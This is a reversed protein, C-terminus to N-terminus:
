LAKLMDQTLLQPMERPEATGAPYHLYLPVGSRGRAELFRTIAPDGDTWDGVMVTIGKAKFHAAVGDTGIATKENVKCTLCWDATFYLFVPKGQQRLEELRKESFPEHGAAKLAEEAAVPDKGGVQQVLLWGLALATLAMPIALAKRFWDMWPGPRPMRRRLAPVFGIALFPLAMGLGLGAFILLAVPVPLILAAGLAAAMFPGTCPTAVFAALAGTWFAGKNGGQGALAGGGGFGRLTFLGALNATIALAVVLLVAVIWPNQLQFAWGVAVGGARLGLLVGGLALCTLVVGASYALAESRAAAESEGARALSLAKLSIIPFVCPLINLLLGGLLAGGFALLAQTVLSASGAQPVEGPSARLEFGRGDATAFLGSLAAPASGQMAKTEVVLWDGARSVQQPAVYDLVDLTESYFWGGEGSISSPMPIAIRLRDGQVAFRAPQTIEFPLKKRWADFSARQAPDPGGAGVTLSAKLEGEEPVCISDTCALWQAKLRIPIISGAPVDPKVRVPLLLVHEGNFVHNMLKAVILKEPVPYRLPGTQELQPPLGEFSLPQGADGPNKWYGHWGPQPVFRLALTTREGPAAEGEVLLEAAINTAQVPTATVICFCLFALLRAIIAQGRM